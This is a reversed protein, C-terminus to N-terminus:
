YPLMNLLLKNSVCLYYHEIDCFLRITYVKIVTCKRGMLWNYLCTAPYDIMRIMIMRVKTRGGQWRKADTSSYVCLNIVKALLLLRRPM